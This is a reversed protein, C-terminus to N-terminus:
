RYLQHALAYEIVKKPMSAALFPEEKLLKKITAKFEPGPVPDTPEPMSTGTNTSTSSACSIVSSGYSPSDAACGPVASRAPVNPHGGPKQSGSAEINGPRNQPHCCQSCNRAGAPTASATAAAVSGYGKANLAATLTRLRTRLQTSSLTHLSKELMFCFGSPKLLAHEFTTASGAALTPVPIPTTLLTPIAATTTSSAVTIGPAEVLPTDSASAPVTAAAMATTAATATKFHHDPTPAQPNEYVCHTRMYAKLAPSIATAPCGKRGMVVLNALNSLELGRYWTDLALFSDMGMIFFLAREPGYQKRLANLTDFTFHREQPSSEIESIELGPHDAVALKLMKLRHQWSVTPVDKHPPVANPILVVKELHLHERVYESLLLHDNHVPNFSGGLLGLRKM